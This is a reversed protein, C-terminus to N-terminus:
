NNDNSKANFGAEELALIIDNISIMNTHDIWAEKNVLSVEVQNICPLDQLEFTVSEQDSQTELNDIFLTTYPM